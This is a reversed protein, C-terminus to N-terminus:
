EKKGESKRFEKGMMGRIMKGKLWSVGGEVCGM